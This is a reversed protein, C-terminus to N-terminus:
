NMRVILRKGFHQFPKEIFRYTLYALSISFIFTLFYYGCLLIFAGAFDTIHFNSSPIWQTIWYIAAFHILYLSFSLKGVWETPKNVLVKIPLKSLGVLLFLWAIGFVLYYPPIFYAYFLLALALILFIGPSLRHADKKLLFYALVGLTFMPLQNIFNFNVFNDIDFFPAKILTQFCKAVLLSGVVLLLSHNLTKIKSVILPLFLYFTMEVAITWGGPVYSNITTPYFGHVFFLNAFFGNWPIPQAINGTSFFGFGIFNQFTYYLIAVYYMPAIRFFRRIFFNRIAHLEQQRSQMSRMLTFASVLFFLQVGLQGNDILKYKIGHTVQTLYSIQGVHVLMVLLIAIGRLSDIYAYKRPEM